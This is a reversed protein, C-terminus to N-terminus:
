ILRFCLQIPSDTEKNLCVNPYILLPSCNGKLLGMWSYEKLFLLVLGLQHHGWRSFCFPLASGMGRWNEKEKSCLLEPPHLWRMRFSVLFPFLFSFHKTTFTCTLFSSLFFYLFLICGRGPTISNSKAVGVLRRNFAGEAQWLEAQDRVRCASPPLIERRHPM